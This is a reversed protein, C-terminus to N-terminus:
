WIIILRIFNLYLKFVPNAVYRLLNSQLPQFLIEGAFTGLVQRDSRRRLSAIRRHAALLERMHVPQLLWAYSRLKAGITRHMIAFLLQGLEMLVFAPALVLLTGWRYNQAVVWLRNREFYYYQKLSRNFEYQHYVVAEPM